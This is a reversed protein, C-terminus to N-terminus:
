KEDDIQDFLETWHFARRGTFHEIQHRCSFGNAIIMADKPLRSIPDFLRGKGIQRSIEYHEKEYGFSGAMGCCGSDLETAKVGIRKLIGKLSGTGYLSKEHCHGHIFTPAAPVKVISETKMKPLVFDAVSTVKQAVREGLREDDLLDPLDYQLASACSPECVLIKKEPVAFADLRNLTKAGGKKADRLFGNSIKPRQCCGVNAVEVAVNLAHLLTIISKGLHPEYYNLYTDIFLVCKDSITKPPVYYKDYWEVFTKKAYSPLIRKKEFGAIKELVWRFSRQRQISNIFSALPGSLLRAGSASGAIIRERLNAGELDYKMQLVESKLKSMDVNSPCESKCAKCSICLDLVELVERSTLDRSDFQGSMALRLANARGRTSHVEDGTAMFSPCMTGSGKKRCAGINGCMHVEEAFSGVDRYLYTTKIIKDRYKEGYKLNDDIAPSDIIKGPNMLGIPDFSKKVDRFAQYIETGFFRENFPSRVLGDGHEGSLSGNYKKVLRFSEEAIEKLLSIDAKERLDLVPRVHIVGVSAHAYKIAEVNRDSCFQDIETIYDSIFELPIAADEIFAIPKRKTKMGLMLGLGKKRVNLVSDYEQGPDFIPYAYAWNNEKLYAVLENARQLSEEPSNGFFEIILVAGPNGQIVKCSDRTEINKRSLEIVTHDIIEIAAPSFRVLHQIARMADTMEHFHALCLNRSFPLPTLKIKAELVIGLTGESGIILKSLNWRKSSLFEDLNYGGVRRMVKPFSRHIVEKNESIIKRLDHFIHGERGGAEIIKEIENESKEEFTLIQGDSLLVKLEIVHDLTKGYIISRTGSSNNAIMGGITARSSTAPDPAFHLNNSLVYSNLQDRVVGPEVWAWQEEFNVDRIKNLHKTFDIILGRGIAQGALGTGAGRAIISVAHDRAISVAQVVDDQDLPICIAEPVIQYMSADTAYM